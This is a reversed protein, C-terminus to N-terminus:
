WGTYFNRLLTISAITRFIADWNPKNTEPVYVFDGSALEPNYKLDGTKIYRQLDVITRQQQGDTTVHLLAVRKIDARSGEAIGGGQVLLDSVRMAHNVHLPYFGPKAVFGFLSVGTPIEPIIILDGSAFQNAGEVNGVLLAKSADVIQSKGDEHTVKVRNTAAMDTPGGAMTLLETFGETAKLNYFGPSRVGGTIMVRINRATELSLVDGSQLLLNEKKRLDVKAVEQNNRLLVAHIDEIPLTMGGSQLLADATGAGPPLEKLGPTSVAGTVFVYLTNPKDVVLVDGPIICFRDDTPTALVDTIRVSETKGTKAHLWSITRDQLANKLGGALLMAESLHWNDKLEFIGPSNVDGLLYYRQARPAKLMVAIEPNVVRDALKKLLLDKVEEVTKGTLFLKGVGPLDIMGDPPIFLEGSFEPHRFVQVSIADGPGLLYPQPANQALGNTSPVCLIYVCVLAFLLIGRM